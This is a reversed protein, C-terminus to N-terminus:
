SQFNTGNRSVSPRHRRKNIDRRPNGGILCLSELDTAKRILFWLQQTFLNQSAPRSEQRKISMILNKLGAFATVANRVDMHNNCLTTVTTDSLHDLVFTELTKYEEAPRQAVCALTTALLLTATSSTKGVVQFPLNLKLRNMNRTAAFVGEVVRRFDTEEFTNEGMCYRRLSSLLPEMEPVRTMITRFVESLRAIEEACVPSILIYAVRSSTAAFNRTCPALQQEVWAESVKFFQNL